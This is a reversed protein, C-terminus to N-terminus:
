PQPPTAYIPSIISKPPISSILQTENPNKNAIGSKYYCQGGSGSANAAFATSQCAPNSQCKYNCSFVSPQQENYLDSGTNDGTYTRVNNSANWSNQNFPLVNPTGQPPKMGYCNVGALRNSPIYSMVGPSDNGCGPRPTQIPYIASNDSVWGTACWDAGYNYADQVQASSAVVANLAICTNNAQDQPTSYPDTGVYFVENNTNPNTQINTGYCQQMAQSKQNNTLTNDNSTKHATDYLQKIAAITGAQKGIAYGTDTAPNLTGEPRCYNMNNNLSNTYNQGLSYTPGIKNTAGQNQYLYIMCDQTAVENQNGSGCPSIIPTGTCYMSATNWDTVSLTNGQLDIGTSAQINMSHLNDTIADLDLASGTSDFLMANATTQDKPYGTGSTSGGLQTFLQQLCTLSYTGPGKTPDYCPDESSLFSLSSTQTSIPGNDCTSANKDYPNIFSFPMHGQLKMSSQGSGPQLIFCSVTNVNQTGAVAPKYNTLLDIDVLGNVDMNFSGNTTNATLYGSIFTNGQEGTVLITYTEGESIGPSPITVNTPTTPNISVNISGANATQITVSNATGQFVFSPYIMNASPDLRNWTGSTFCNTCNPVNFSHREMCDIQQKMVICSNSDIAFQSSSGLTPTFPTTNQQSDSQSDSQSDRSIQTYLMGGMHPNGGSDKGKKDFSLGCNQAFTPDNFADCTATNVKECQQALQFLKPSTATSPYKKMGTNEFNGSHSKKDYLLTGAVSTGTTSNLLMAPNTMNNLTMFPNYQQQKTTITDVPIISTLGEKKPLYLFTIYIGLVLLICLFLNIEM